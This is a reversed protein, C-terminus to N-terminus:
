QVNLRYLGEKEGARATFYLTKENEDFVPPDIKDMSALETVQIEDGETWTIVNITKETSYLLYNKTKTKIISEIPSSWRAILKKENKDLDLMWIEFDNAWVLERDNIWETKKVAEIKEALPDTASLSPDILYLSQYKEDYLNLLKSDPNILRYGDSFPLEIQKEAKKANLNYFKLKVSLGSEALYYLEKGKVIYDLIKEEKLLVENTRNDTNFSNITNKYQYYIKAPDNSWKLNFIDPGVIKELDLNKETNKLNLLKKEFIIKSSDPSWDAEALINDSGSAVKETKASKLDLTLGSSPLLLKKSNPSLSVKQRPVDSLLIPQGNRFLNIDLIHTIKEPYIMIRRTWPWYGPLDVKLDFAGPTLEKIRAPTKLSNKEAPIIKKLFRGNFQTQLQGNLYIDAGSPESYIIAMGTKKLALPTSLQQWDIEYGRAYLIILPTAIFFVLCFSYFILRRLNLSM